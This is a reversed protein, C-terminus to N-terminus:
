QTLWEIVVDQPDFVRTNEQKNITVTLLTGIIARKHALTLKNEWHNRVDEANVLAGIQTDGDAANIQQQLTEIRKSLKTSEERVATLTLIGESLAAALDDKRQRLTASEVMLPEIDTAPRILQAADPKSLRAIVVSEVLEDVRAQNRQVCWSTTCAYAIKAPQKVGNKARPYDPRALMRAGCVGCTAIGSLLYKTRNSWTHPTKRRVKLSKFREWTDMSILPEWNGMAVAEGKYLRIGAYAPNALRERLQSISWQKGGPASVNRLNLSQVISYYTEGALYRDFAERLVKAEDEVIRVMGDVREYGYPRNSFQWSGARARQVNSAVQRAGKQEVEYRAAHGLMGALMRGAPTALDLDGARVTLIRLEHKEAMEVIDVLDRVRRYLRDTHWVVITSVNGQKIASLLRTFGPRVGKSASVDNDIYEHDITLGHSAAVKRCESIQRDVAAATGDRDLSQRAYIVTQM